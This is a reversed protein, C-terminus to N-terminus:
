WPKWNGRHLVGRVATVASHLPDFVRLTNDLILIPPPQKLNSITVVALSIAWLPKRSSFQPQMRSLGVDPCRDSEVPSSLQDELPSCQAIHHMNINETCAFLKFFVTDPVDLSKPHLEFISHDERGYGATIFSNPAIPTNCGLSPMHLAKIAYTSPDFSFLYAYLDRKGRNHIEISYQAVQADTADLQAVNNHLLDRDDSEGNNKIRHMRLEVTKSSFVNEPSKTGPFQRGLHFHFHAIKMLVNPLPLHPAINPIAVQATYQALVRDWAARQIKTGTGTPHLTVHATWESDASIIRYESTDSSSRLDITPSYVKLDGTNWRHIVAWSNKPLEFDVGPKFRLMSSVPGVSDVVLIGLPEEASQTAYAAVETGVVVGHAEGAAICVPPGEPTHAPPTLRFFCQASQTGSFLYRDVINGDCQPHQHINDFQLSDFLASYTTIRANEGLDRLRRTLAATFLGCVRGQIQNEHAGENEACAALLIHSSHNGHFGFRLSHDNARRFTECDINPPISIPSQGRSRLRPRHAANMDRNVGGAHCSDCIFTINNGKERALIRLLANITVDPIGPVHDHTPGTSEDSPCITEVRGRPTHWGGPADATGGHGAFFIVIADGKKIEANDILHTYFASIIASRTAATNRLSCIASEPVRGLVHVLCSQIADADHLCGELNLISPSLYQSVTLNAINRASDTGVENIAISLLFYAPSM